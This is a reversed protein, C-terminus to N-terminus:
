HRNQYQSPTLGYKSKFVHAFHSPSGFGCRDAVVAVQHGERLLHTAKQLRYNRLLQIPNEDTLAKIKRQLQRESVAMKQALDKRNFTADAYNGQIHRNMTEVFRIDLKNLRQPVKGKAFEEGSQRSLIKRIHLINGVRQLLEEADFPKTLYEDVNERWGRLRSEKDDRATLLIIPIHCTNEDSRLTKAVEFGDMEPMMVDSIILDPIDSIARAVGAQGRNEVTCSYYPSLTDRIFQAMDPNDEIILIGPIGAQHSVSEGQPFAASRDRPKSDLSGQNSPELSKPAVGVPLDVSFISGKNPTSTVSVRGGQASLLEQILALGLGSGPQDSHQTLRTFREFIQQQEQPNLGPGTDAVQLRVMADQQTSRITIRGHDPTYKVANSLLNSIVTELTDEEVYVWFDDRIQNDLKIHKETAASEFSAATFRVVSTLNQTKPQSVERQDLQAMKLLQDVLLLMRDANRRIMKLQQIDSFSQASKLLKKLPGLILTLPTRFEHSVNAIMQNKRDLLATITDKQAAIAQTKESVEQRLIQAHRIAARTRMHITALVAALLAMTYGFFAWPTLWPSPTVTVPLRTETPTWFGDPNAARVRFTYEGAPINTYTIHRNRASTFQWQSDFGELMYQYRNQQPAAYHLGAFELGFVDVTHDFRIQDLGLTTTRKSAQPNLESALATQNYRTIRSIHLKPPIQNVQIADPHFRNLGRRGGFLLYDGTPSTARSGRTFVTSQLGHLTQFRRLEDTRTDLRHLGRDTSIWIRGQADQQIAAIVGPAEAPNALPISKIVVGSESLVVVGFYPVGVWINQQQDVMISDTHGLDSIASPLNTVPVHQLVGQHLRVVGSSTAFWVDEVDRQAAAIFRTDTLQSEGSTVQALVSTDVHFRQLGEMTGLLFTNDHQPLVFYSLGARESTGNIRIPGAPTSIQRSTDEVPDSIRYIVHQAEDIWTLGFQSAGWLRGSQDRHFHYILGPSVNAASDTAPSYAKLPICSHTHPDYHIPGQESGIWFTGDIDEFVGYITPSPLCHLADPADNLLGFGLTPLALANAGTNFTGFWLTDSHDRFLTLVINSSLSDSSGAQYRFHEIQDLDPQWRVAGQNRTGIWLEGEGYDLAMANIDRVGVSGPSLQELDEQLKWVGKSTGLWIEHDSARELARISLSELQPLTIRRLERTQPSYRYLGSQAALWLDESDSVAHLDNIWGIETVVQMLVSSKHVNESWLWLGTTTAIYLTNNGASQLARIQTNPSEKTKPFLWSTYQGTKLDYALLGRDHTGIWLRQAPDSELARVSINGRVDTQPLHDSLDHTIIQYGDYRALGGSTAMWIYGNADQTIDWVTNGPLGDDLWVEQFRAPTAWLHQTATVGLILLLCARKMFFVALQHSTHM